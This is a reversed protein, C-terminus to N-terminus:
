MVGRSLARVIRDAGDVLVRLEAVEPAAKLHPQADVLRTTKHATVNLRHLAARFLGIQRELKAHEPSDEMRRRAEADAWTEAFTKM